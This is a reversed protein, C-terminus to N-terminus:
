FQIPPFFDLYPTKFLRINILIILTILSNFLEERSLKQFNVTLLPINSPTRTEVIYVGSDQKIGLSSLEKKTVIIRHVFKYHFEKSSLISKELVGFNVNGKQEWSKLILVGQQRGYM